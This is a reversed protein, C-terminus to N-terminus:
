RLGSERPNQVGGPPAISPAIQRARRFASQIPVTGANIDQEVQRRFEFIENYGVSARALGIVVQSAADVPVDRSILDTLVVLEAAMTGEGGKSADGRAAHVDRLRRISSTDVGAYIAEASASLEAQSANPGLTVRALRLRGLLGRVAALIHRDDAGKTSGELAKQLLSKAPLGEARASDMMAMVSKLTEEGLGGTQQALCPLAGVALLICCLVSTKLSMSRM